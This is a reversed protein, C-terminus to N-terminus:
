CGGTSSQVAESEVGGVHRLLLRIGVGRAVIKVVRGCSDLAAEDEWSGQKDNQHHHHHSQHHHYNQAVRQDNQSEFHVLTQSSLAIIVEQIQCDRIKKYTLGTKKKFLPFYYLKKAVLCLPKNYRTQKGLGTKNYYTFRKMNLMKNHTLKVQLTLLQLDSWVNILTTLVWLAKAAM